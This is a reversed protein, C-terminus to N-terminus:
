RIWRALARQRKSKTIVKQIDLLREDGARSQERHKIPYFIKGGPEVFGVRSLHAFLSTAITRAEAAKYGGEITLALAFTYKFEKAMNRSTRQVIRQLANQLTGRLRTGMGATRALETAVYEAFVAAAPAPIIASPFRKSELYPPVDIHAGEDEAISRLTAAILAATYERLVRGLTFANTIVRVDCEMRDAIDQNSLGFSDRVEVWKRRLTAARTNPIRDPSPGRPMSLISFMKLMKSLAGYPLSRLEHRM